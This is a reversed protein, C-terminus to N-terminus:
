RAATSTSPAASAAGSSLQSTTMNLMPTTFTGTGSLNVTTTGRVALDTADNANGNTTTLSGGSINVTSNGGGNAFEILGNTNFAGGTQTYTNTGDLVLGQSATSTLTGNIVNLASNSGNAGVFVGM